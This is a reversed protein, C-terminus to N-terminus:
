DSAFPEVRWIRAEAGDEVVYPHGNHARLDRICRGFETFLAEEGVVAGNEVDLPRVEADVLAGTFLGGQWGPFRDGVYVALGLTSHVPDL